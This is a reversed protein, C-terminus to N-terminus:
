NLNNSNQLDLNKLYWESTLELGEALDVVPNYGLAKVKNISPCRRHTEGPPAESPLIEVDRRQLKGVMEALNSIKTEKDTGVHYINKHDGETFAIHAGNIFDDIYCFARTQLGSGNISFPLAGSSYTLNLENVRLIFQPIVHEWGMDPGYVNHPRVIVANEFHKTAYNLLYLESIIKGGGYSYRPNLPDPISLSVTEDTPISEPSQYVEGSSMLWYEPVGCEIAADITNIMGKLAIELVLEPRTYFFETGNVYALHAIVDINFCAKKVDEYSRVDGQLFEIESEISHL